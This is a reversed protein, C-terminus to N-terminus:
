DTGNQKNNALKLLEPLSEGLLEDVKDLPMMNMQIWRRDGGEFPDLDELARCENQSKLGANIAIRYGDMRTKFDGRLLGDVNFKWKLEDSRKEKETYLKDWMEREFRSLWTTLTYMVFELSQQEINSYTAADMEMIMHPPLRLIRSVDINGKKLTDLVQADAPNISIPKFQMGEELVAVKNDTGETHYTKHWSERLRDAAQKSLQKPHELVGTLQSGGKFFTAGNKQAALTIGASSAIYEILSVGLIGDGLTKFHLMHDQDILQAVGSVRYYLKNEYRIVEVSHDQHVPIIETPRFDNDRVIVAYANGRHICLKVVIEWFINATMFSNPKRAVLYWTNSKEFNHRDNAVRINKLPLSGVTEAILRVGSTWATIQNISKENVPVGSDAAGLSFVGKLWNAPDKLNSISSLATDVGRIVSNFGREIYNKLKM